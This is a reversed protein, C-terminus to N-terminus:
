GFLDKLLDIEEDMLQSNPTSSISTKKDTTLSLQGSEIYQLIIRHVEEELKDEKTTNKMERQILECVFKSTNEQANLYHFVDEFQKRFSITIRLPTKEM